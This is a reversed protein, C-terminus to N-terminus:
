CASWLGVAKRVRPAMVAKGGCWRRDCRGNPPTIPRSWDKSGASRGSHMGISCCTRASRRCSRGRRRDAGSWLLEHLALRVPRLAQQLAIQDFLDSQYARWAAFLGHAQTLMRQAWVSDEHQQDVLGQLNRIRHAWCLQRQGDLLAHYVSARDAHVVGRYDAGILQRLAGQGRSPAIRFCTAGARVAVWLWGRQTGERWSTEDVWLHPHRQVMTQMAADVPAVAASLRGCSAAIGGLSIAVGCVDALVDATTRMSLHYGGHLVGILATLRGFAGPPLDAPLDATVAHQCTPCCVTQQQYETARQSNAGM